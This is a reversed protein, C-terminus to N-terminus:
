LDVITKFGGYAMRNVNFPMLKDKYNPDNMMADEMVKANVEDRHERSKFIIFSFVVLEDDEIKALQPFKIFKFNEPMKPDMDEGVCEFYELAGYKIWVEGAKKAMEEYAPLDEKKVPLVFGDVYKNM